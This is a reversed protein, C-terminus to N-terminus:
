LDANIIGSYTGNPDFCVARAYTSGAASSSRVQCTNNSPYAYELTGSTTKGNCSTLFDGSYCFVYAYDSSSEKDYIQYYSGVQDATLEGNIDMEATNIEVDNANITVEGLGSTAQILMTGLLNEVALYVGSAYEGIAVTNWGLALFEDRGDNNADVYFHSNFYAYDNFNSQGDVTLDGAAQLNAGANVNGYSNVSDFTASGGTVSGNAYLTDTNIQNDVNLGSFTPVLGSNDPPNASPGVAGTFTPAILTVLVAIMVAGTLVSLHFKYNM